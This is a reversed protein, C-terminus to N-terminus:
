RDKVPHIANIPPKICLLGGRELEAQCEPWIKKLKALITRLTNRLRYADKDVTGLQEALDKWSIRAVPNFGGSLSRECLWSRYCILAVFDWAKPEDQFHRMVELRLPVASEQLHKWLTPSLTVFYQLGPLHPQGSAEKKRDKGTPLDWEELLPILRGKTRTETEIEITFVANGLRRWTEHFQAYTRGGKDLDFLEFFESASKWTVTPNGQRKAKTQLWALVARDKGYPLPIDPDAAAVILSVTGRATRATRKYHTMPRGSEDLLPKYPLGCLILAQAAVLLEQDEGETHILEGTKALAQYELSSLGMLAGPNEEWAKLVERHEETMTGAMSAGMAAQLAKKTVRKRPKPKPEPGSLKSDKTNKPTKITM